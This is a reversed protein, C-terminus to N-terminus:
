RIESKKAHHAPHQDCVVVLKRSDGYDRRAEQARALFRAFAEANTSVEISTLLGPFVNSVGAFVTIPRLTQDNQPQVIRQDPAQWTRTRRQRVCVTTEDVFLMPHNQILMSALDVAARSRRRDMVIKRDVEKRSMVRANRYSIGYRQYLRLLGTSSIHIRHQTWLHRVRARLSMFRQNQLTEEATLVATQERSFRSPRGAGRGHRFSGSRLFALVVSRCTQQPLHLQRGIDAYSLRAPARAAEAHM